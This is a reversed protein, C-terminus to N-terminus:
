ASLGFEKLTDRRLEQLEESSLEKSSEGLFIIEPSIKVLTYLKEGTKILYSNQDILVSLFKLLEPIKASLEEYNEFDGMIPLGESTAYLYRSFGYKAELKKTFDQIEHTEKTRLFGWIRELLKM